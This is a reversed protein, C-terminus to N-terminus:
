KPVDMFGTMFCNLTYCFRLDPGGRAPPSYRLAISGDTDAEGPLTSKWTM